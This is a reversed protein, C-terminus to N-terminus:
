KPQIDILEIKFVLASNAPIPGGGKEGYGLEAPVYLEWTEGKKMKPIALRWAEVLGDLPFVAPAGRDFSSDFVTGDILRGEYHVKVTDRVSPSAAAADAAPTLVKYYMGRELPQVGEEKSVKELYAQGAELNAAVAAPDPKQGCAAGTLGFMLATAVLAPKTWAFPM